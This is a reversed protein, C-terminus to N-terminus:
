PYAEAFKTVAREYNELTGETIGDFRKGELYWELHQLIDSEGDERVIEKVEFEDDGFKAKAKMIEEFLRRNEYNMSNRREKQTGNM